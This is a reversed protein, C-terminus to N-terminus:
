AYISYEYQKYVVYIIYIIIVRYIYSISKRYCESITQLGECKRVM